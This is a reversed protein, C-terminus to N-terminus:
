PSGRQATGDTLMRYHADWSRAMRDLSYHNVITQRAARGLDSRLAADGSMRLIAEALADPAHPPVLLGGGHQLIEVNGGVATAIAPLGYSLAELLANSLNEHWSPFLFLDAADLYPGVDAQQGVFHVRSRALDTFMAAISGDDDGGGVVILDIGANGTGADIRRLAAALDGYGKQVTLRSVITAVIRDPGISLRARADYGVTRDPSPLTVGNPVPPLLKHRYPALFDRQAASHCMTVVADAMCLTAPELLKVVLSRRLGRNGVLDRQTGHVSVLIHPVRAIRGALAAHFGENGLGRVHLLHPRLQRLESVFRRLLPISLGGAAKHQRIEPYPIDRTSQLRALATAPGGAHATGFCHQVIISNM